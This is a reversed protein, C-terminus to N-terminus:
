LSDMNRHVTQLFLYDRVGPLNQKGVFGRFGIVNLYLM